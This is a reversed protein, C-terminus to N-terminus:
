ERLGLQYGQAATATVLVTQWRAWVPRVSHPLMAEAQRVGGYGPQGKSGKAGCFSPAALPAAAAYHTLPM